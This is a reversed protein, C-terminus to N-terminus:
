YRSELITRGDTPQIPRADYPYLKAFAAVEDTSVEEPTKLVFWTIGETCPPTTLSGQFTYYGLTPPLFARANIPAGAIEQEPGEARPFDDFIRRVADNARGHELLIAVVALKGKSNAHEFGKGNIHEESPHHFHFQRLEYKDDGVAIWSGPAYDVQVSHGNNVIKLPADVYHFQIPPLDEKRVGRIDIPSQAHGQKCAIYAASLDGWAKPGNEGGYGFHPAQEPNQGFASAFAVYAIIVACLYLITSRQFM